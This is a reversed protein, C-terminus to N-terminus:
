PVARAPLIAHWVPPRRSAKRESPPQVIEFVVGDENSGGLKTTGYLNGARDEILDAVPASGDACLSQSCFRYVVTEVSPAVIKFLTGGDLETTGYLAGRKSDILVGAFPMAGNNGDFLFETGAGKPGLRFVGGVSSGGTSFTSYLNGLPDFSVIGLPYAGQYFPPTSTLLVTETWGNVGQTLRYVTGGGQSRPAGGFQTTGYLNGSKDFTVGAQPFSGDLCSSGEGLSCFSYLVSEKWRNGSQSLKFIVGGGFNNKDHGSGGQSTTGYVDGHADATLRSIPVAGDPCTQNGNKCFTYLVMETWPGGSSSPPSLEFVTGCSGKIGCVQTGGSTTTGYLNGKFDFVLGAEPMAGDTCLSNDTTSCFNYIVTEAWTGDSNPSLEFVTGCGTCFPTAGGLKTTGYLNGVHDFVVESMPTSGDAGAGFSWLVKYQTQGLTFTSGLLLVVACLHAKKNM